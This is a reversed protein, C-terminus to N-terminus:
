EELQKLKEAVGHGILSLIQKSTEPQSKYVAKLKKNLEEQYSGDVWDIVTPFTYTFVPEKYLQRYQEYTTLEGQLRAGLHLTFDPFLRQAAEYLRAVTAQPALFNLVSTLEDNTKLIALRLKPKLYGEVAQHVSESYVEYKRKLGKLDYEGKTRGAEYSIIKRLIREEFEMLGPKAEKLDYYYEAYKSKFQMNKRNYTVQIYLPYSARGKENTVAELLQNLFFKVTVKKGKKLTDM